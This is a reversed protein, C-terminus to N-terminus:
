SYSAPYAGGRVGLDGVGGCVFFIWCSFGSLHSRGMDRALRGFLSILGPAFFPEDPLPSLCLGPNVAKLLVATDLSKTRFGPFAAAAHMCAHMPTHMYACIQVSICQSHSALPCDSQALEPAWSLIQMHTTAERRAKPLQQGRPNQELSM